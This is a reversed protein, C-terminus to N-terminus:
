LNRCVSAWPVSVEAYELSFEDNGGVFRLGWGCKGKWPSDIGDVSGGLGPVQLDSDGNVSGDEEGWM